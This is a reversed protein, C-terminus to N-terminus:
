CFVVAQEVGFIEGGESMIWKWWFWIRFLWCDEDHLEKEEGREDCGGECSWGWGWGGGGGGGGAGYALDVASPIEDVLKTCGGGGRKRRWKEM